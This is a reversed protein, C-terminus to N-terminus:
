LVDKGSTERKILREVADECEKESLGDLSVKHEV